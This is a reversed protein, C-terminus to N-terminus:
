WDPKVGLSHPIRLSPRYFCDKLDASVVSVLFSIPSKSAATGTEIGPCAKIEGTQGSVLPSSSHVRNPAGGVLLELDFAAVDRDSRNRVKYNACSQVTFQATFDNDTIELSTGHLDVSVIEIPSDPQEVVYILPM